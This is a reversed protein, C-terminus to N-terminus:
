PLVQPRAAFPAGADILELLPMATFGLVITALAAAFAIWEMADPVKRPRRPLDGRTFAPGIVRFVYISALLGGVLVVFAVFWRGEAVAAELILWKAIFGGSPPLGAITIGAIGFAGMTLPLRQVVHDLEGIRDGGFTQIN